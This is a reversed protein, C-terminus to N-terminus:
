LRGLNEFFSVEEIFENTFIGFAILWAHNCVFMFIFGDILHPFNFALGSLAKEWYERIDWMKECVCWTGGLDYYFYDDEHGAKVTFLENTPMKSQEVTPDHDSVHTFGNRLVILAIMVIILPILTSYSPGESSSSPIDPIKERSKPLASNGLTVSVEALECERVEAGM